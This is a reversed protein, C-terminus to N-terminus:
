LISHPSSDNETRDPGKTVCCESVKQRKAEEAPAVGDDEVALSGRKLSVGTM